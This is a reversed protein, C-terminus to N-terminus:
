RGQRFWCNAIEKFDRYDNDILSRAVKAVIILDGFSCLNFNEIKM